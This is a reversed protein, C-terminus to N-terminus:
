FVVVKNLPKYKAFPTATLGSSEKTKNLSIIFDKGEVVDNKANM